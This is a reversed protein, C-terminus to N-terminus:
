NITPTTTFVRKNPYIPDACSFDPIDWKIGGKILLVTNFVTAGKKYKKLKAIISKAGPPNILFMIIAIARCNKM